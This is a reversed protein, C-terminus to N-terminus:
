STPNPALKIWNAIGGNNANVVNTVAGLTTGSYTRYRFHATAVTAFGWAFM